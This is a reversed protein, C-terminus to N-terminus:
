LTDRQLWRQAIWYDLSVWRGAGTFFLVMLMILYTVGFEIGNNLVVISGQETLWEYNGHAQLIERAKALREVAAITRDNAFLSEAGEAIALWGNPWHVTFIAVLMTISLPVTIWRVALGLLLCVAGVAETGAALTAMWTPFPLGLGWDSNGFWAVTNDFEALKRAGAMWFIPVLYLRLALPGLFDAHRARDLLTPLRAALCCAPATSKEQM